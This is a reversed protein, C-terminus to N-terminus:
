MFGVKEMSIKFVVDMCSDFVRDINRTDTANTYHSYVPKEHQIEGSVLRSFRDAVYKAAAELSNPGKYNKFCTTLPYKSIKEKFIDIKNLFLIMATKKSFCQHNAIRKFLDMSYRLKNVKGPSGDEQPHEDDDTYLNYGSIAAIFLVGNVNDFCHIWKRQESRQGGVDVMRLMAERFPFEIETIGTTPVRAKLVDMETPKYEHASIRDLDDLFYTASDLLTIENKRNLVGKIFESNYLKQLSETLERNLEVESMSYRVKYSKYHNLARRISPSDDPPFHFLEAAELLQDMAQMINSYILYRFNVYDLDSFGNLHIIKMQKFITSKGCEPGGLLLIKLTRKMELKDKELQRNIISNKRAMDGPTMETGGCVNVRNNVQTTFSLRGCLLFGFSIDSTASASSEINHSSHQSPAALKIQQNAQRTSRTSTNNVAGIPQVQNASSSTNVSNLPALIKKRLSCCDYCSSRGTYRRPDAPPPQPQVPPLSPYPHRTPPAPQPPANSDTTTELAGNDESSEEMASSRMTDGSSDDPDIPPNPM